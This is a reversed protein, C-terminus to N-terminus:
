KKPSRVNRKSLDKKVAEEIAKDETKRRPQPKKRPAKVVGKMPPFGQPTEEPKKTDQLNRFYEKQTFGDRHDRVDGEAFTTEVRLRTSFNEYEAYPNQQKAM